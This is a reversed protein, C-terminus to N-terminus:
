ASTAYPVTPEIINPTFPDDSFVDRQHFYQIQLKPDPFVTIPAATLPINLTLGGHSSYSLTGGVYYTTPGDPAADSTPVLIFSATGTSNVALAGTGDVAGMGSVTPPKLGFRDTVDHGNADYIIVQAAINQISNQPDQNILTLSANFASRAVILDQTSKWKSTPAFAAATM